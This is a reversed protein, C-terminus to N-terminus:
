FTIRVGLQIQRAPAASSIVGFTASGFTTGPNGLNTHNIINFVETRFETRVRETIKFNRILSMDIQIVGPGRIIGVGANGFTYAAPQSFASTNFWAAVTHSSTNPDGTVNPRQPGASFCNCNNTQTTISLAAGTQFTSINGLTWGGLVYRLPNNALWRRGKGFPLEYIWHFNVRHKVDDATPGYNAHRDTSYADQYILNGVGNGLATGPETINGLYKSWTYNAGFSLGHSFRKDARVLAAYYNSVGNTPFQIQVDTFQPFPRYKQLQTTIGQAQLSSLVQPAIQNLSLNANALKRALNGLVAVEVVINGRLEHQIGLNFQESYGVARHPELFTVSNTTKGAAALALTVAGFSDDLTPNTIM